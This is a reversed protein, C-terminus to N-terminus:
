LTFWEVNFLTVNALVPRDQPSVDANRRHSVRRALNLGGYRHRDINRRTFFRLCTQLFGLFQQLPAYAFSRALQARCVFFQLALNFPALSQFSFDQRDAVTLLLPQSLFQVVTQALM